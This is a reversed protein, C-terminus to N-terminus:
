FAFELSAHAIVKGSGILTAKTEAFASAKGFRLVNSEIRLDDSLAPRIFHTHQYVTGKPSRDSTHMAISAVTDIAAMMAQGCVAGSVFQLREHQPLTASAKGPAVDFDILGLDKVWSAFLWDYFEQVTENTIPLPHRFSATPM